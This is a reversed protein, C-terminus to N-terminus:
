TYFVTHTSASFCIYHNRRMCIIASKWFIVACETVFHAYEYIKCCFVIVLVSGWCYIRTFRFERTYYPVTNTTISTHMTSTLLGESGQSWRWSQITRGETRKFRLLGPWRRTRPSRSTRSVRARGAIYCHESQLSFQRKFEGAAEVSLLLYKTDIIDHKIVPFVYYKQRKTM